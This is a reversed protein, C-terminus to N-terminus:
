APTSFFNAVSQTLQTPPIVANVQVTFTQTWTSVAGDTDTVTCQTTGTVPGATSPAVATFLATNAGNVSVTASPDTFAVTLNSVVGGSPTIGDALLPTITDTSTQGVNFVLVNNAMSDGGSFVNAVSATLRTPHHLLHIIQLLSQKLQSVDNRVDHRLEHVEHELHELRREIENREIGNM